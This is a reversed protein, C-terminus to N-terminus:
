FGMMEFEVSRLAYDQVQRQVHLKGETNGILTM